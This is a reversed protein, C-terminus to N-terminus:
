CSGRGMSSNCSISNVVAEVELHKPSVDADGIGIALKEKEFLAPIASEVM